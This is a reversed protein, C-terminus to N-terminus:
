QGCMADRSNAEFLCQLMPNGSLVITKPNRAFRARAAKLLFKTSVIDFKTADWAREYLALARVHLDVAEGYKALFYKVVALRILSHPDSWGFLELQREVYRFDRDLAPTLKGDESPNEHLLDLLEQDWRV